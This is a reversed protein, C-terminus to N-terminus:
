RGGRYIALDRMSGATTVKTAILRRQLRFCHDLLEPLDESLGGENCATLAFEFEGLRRHVESIILFESEHSEHFAQKRTKGASWARLAGRRCTQAAEITGTGADVADDCVWAAHLMTWGADAYQGLRELILAHCIFENAKAPFRADGLQEQYIGSEVVPGAQDHISSLDAACYGCNNCRAMWLGISSRLDEGPRTDLDPPELEEAHLLHSVQQEAGCNGCRILVSQSRVRQSTGPFSAPATGQPDSPPAPM